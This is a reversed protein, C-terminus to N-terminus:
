LRWPSVQLTDVDSSWISTSAGGLGGHDGEGIEPQAVRHELCQAVDAVLRGRRDLGRRDRRQERAAVDHAERLGAGALGGRERQRDEVPEVDRLLGRLREHEGRRALERQLDALRELLVRRVDAAHVDEGDVAALAVAHLQRREAAAHVDDDARGAADHVVEVLAREVQRLQLVEHEVLGVLHELHAEGLVDLRDEGVGGVGLLDRQERRRHRGRDAPHRLLVQVVGFLDRDLGLGRRRRRDRLAVQDDDYWCFISARM